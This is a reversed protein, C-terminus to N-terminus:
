LVVQSFIVYKAGIMDPREEIGAITQFLGSNVAVDKLKASTLSRGQIFEYISQGLGHGSSHSQAVRGRANLLGPMTMFVYTFYQMKTPTSHRIVDKM